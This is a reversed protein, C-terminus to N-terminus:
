SVEFLEQLFKLLQLDEEANAQKIDSSERRGNPKSTADIPTQITSPTIESPEFFELIFQSSQITHGFLQELTNLVESHDKLKYQASAITRPLVGYLCDQLLDSM